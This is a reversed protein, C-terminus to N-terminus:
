ATGAPATPGIGLAFELATLDAVHVWEGETVAVKLEDHFAKSGIEEYLDQLAVAPFGLVVYERGELWVQEPPTALVVENKLDSSLAAEFEAMAEVPVLLQIEEEVSAGSDPSPGVDPGQGPEIAWAMPALLLLALSAALVTRM